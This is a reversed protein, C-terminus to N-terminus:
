SPFAMRCNRCEAPKPPVQKPNKKPKIDCKAGMFGQSARWVAAFHAHQHRDYETELQPDPKRLDVESDDDDKELSIYYGRISQVQNGRM